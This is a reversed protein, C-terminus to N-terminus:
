IRPSYFPLTSWGDPSNCYTRIIGGARFRFFKFVTNFTIRSNNGYSLGPNKQGHSLHSLRNICRLTDRCYAGLCYKQGISRNCVCFFVFLLPPKNDWLVTYPLHGDLISQGMIIFTSEDWNIVTTFFFPLRIVLCLTIIYILALISQRYDDFLVHHLQKDLAMTIKWKLLPSALTIQWNLAYRPM